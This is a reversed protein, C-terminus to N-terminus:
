RGELPPDVNQAADATRLRRKLRRMELLARISELSVAFLLIVGLYTQEFYVNAQLMVLGNKVLVILFASFFMGLPSIVGGALSAGGIVAVAFSYVMWDSGTSPQASGMRSIWLLGAIAAFLGSAVNAVVVMRGTNVASLRAAEPNGGTALLKRGLVTYRFIYWMIALVVIAFIILFPVAGIGKRGIITFSAPIETYPYGESIGNILGAFVFSTALTAVFPSINLKVIVFANMLGMLIGALLAAAVALAPPMHLEQMCYGAVVVSLGGIQGLSLNMGGVILVMAQSLAIFMYLAATRSINFLNYATLFGDSFIAFVVFLAATALIVTVDSSRFLSRIDLRATEGRM